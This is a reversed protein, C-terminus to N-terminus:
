VKDVAQRYGNTFVTMLSYFHQAQGITAYAWTPEFQSQESAEASKIAEANM